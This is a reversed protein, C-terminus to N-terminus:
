FITPIECCVRAVHEVWSLLMLVLLPVCSCPQNPNTPFTNVVHTDPLRGAVDWLRVGGGYCGENLVIFGACSGISSLVPVDNSSVTLAEMFDTVPTRFLLVNRIGILMYLVRNIWRAGQRRREVEFVLEADNGVSRRRVRVAVRLIRM